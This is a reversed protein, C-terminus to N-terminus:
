NTNLLCNIDYGDGITGIDHTIVRGTYEDILTCSAYNNGSIVPDVGILQGPLVNYQNAVWVRGTNCVAQSTTPWNLQICNAPGWKIIISVNGGITYSAPASSLAPAATAPPMAATSISIAVAAAAILGTMNM